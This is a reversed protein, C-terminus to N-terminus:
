RSKRSPAVRAASSRAAGPARSNAAASSPSMRRISLIESPQVPRRTSRTPARVPGSSRGASTVIPPVSQLETDVLGGRANGARCGGGRNTATLCIESSLLAGARRPCRRAPATAQFPGTSLSHIFHAHSSENDVLIQVVRLNQSQLWVRKPPVHIARESGEPDHARSGSLGRPRFPEGPPLTKPGQQGVSGSTRPQVPCRLAFGEPRAKRSFALNLPPSTRSADPTNKPVCTNPGADACRVDRKKKCARWVLALARGGPRRTSNRPGGPATERHARARDRRRM